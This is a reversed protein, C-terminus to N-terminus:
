HVSPVVTLTGHLPTYPSNIPDEILLDIQLVVHEDEFDATDLPDTTIRARTNAPFEATAEAILEIGDGITYQFTPTDSLRRKATFTLAYLTLDILENDDDRFWVIFKAADGRTLTLSIQKASM